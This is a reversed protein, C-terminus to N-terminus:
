PDVSPNTSIPLSLPSDGAAKPGCGTMAIVGESVGDLGLCQEIERANLAITVFAGLGLEASVLYQTQSLHAADMLIGAYAKQHRRYKWHNRYFRATLVFSVHAAGFYGQGCMFSTAIRRMEPPDVAALLGLSHERARYHYIGSKLGEVNSILPYAEIPHLAGGSPSTRRVWVLGPVAEGYGHCGFVYRLVVDLEELKMPQAAFARTTRRAALTAFLGDRRVVGPLRVAEIASLEPFPEPAPGYQAVFADIQAVTQRAFQAAAEDVAGIDVGTWQTMFHYLAAYLNWQNASLAEDRERLVTHGNVEGDVLLLGKESLSAILDPDRGAVAVWREAPVSALLELEERGLRHRDGTLLALAIIRADAAAGPADGRILGSIDLQLDDELYFFAYPTRRLRTM